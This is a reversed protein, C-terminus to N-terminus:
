NQIKKLPICFLSVIRGVNLSVFKRQAIDFSITKSVINSFNKVQREQSQVFLDTEPKSIVKKALIYKITNLKAFLFSRTM